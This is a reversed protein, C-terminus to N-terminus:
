LGRDVPITHTDTAYEEGDPILRGSPDRRFRTVVVTEPTLLIVPVDTPDIGMNRVATLLQDRTVFQPTRSVEM